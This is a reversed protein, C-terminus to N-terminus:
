RDASVRPQVRTDAVPHAVSRLWPLAMGAVTLVIALVFGIATGRPPPSHGPEDPRPAGPVPPLFCLM